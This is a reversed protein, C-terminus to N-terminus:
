FTPLDDGPPSLNGVAFGNADNGNADFFGGFMGEGAAHTNEHEAGNASEGASRQVLAMIVGNASEGTSRQVLAMILYLQSIIGHVFLIVSTGLCINMNHM